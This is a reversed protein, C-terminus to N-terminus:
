ANGVGEGGGATQRGSGGALCRVTDRAILLEEDTPIVWAQLRSGDASIRAEHGVAAGNRAPDLTLGFWDLGACIQARIAPANEGIGGTFVIADAGGLAALYAGIYKRARYCFVEIALRAQRGEPGAAAELLTRMDASLGSLGLLGSATNLMTLLQDVSLGERQSLVELIAPDLDGSRTGMVLGELPTFGMSTDVSRGGKIATASAGNGLHLTIINVQDRPTGSIEAYRETVYRHSTGHFGYRRLGYRRAMEHPIAYSHAHEPITHHFATDFVAVMPTKPGLIERSALIGSVAPPNHLPALEGLAELAALVDEDVLTSQAFRSGGHVVRHGVAGVDDPKTIDPIGSAPSCVWGLIHEVAARHDPASAVVRHVGGRTGEFVVLAEPGLGDVMGRALRCERRERDATEEIAIIQFKVTASGCNLVLVNM